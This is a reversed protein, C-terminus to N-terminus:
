LYDRKTVCGTLNAPRVTAYTVGPHCPTSGIVDIMAAGDCDSLGMAVFRDFLAATRDFLPTAVGVSDAFEGVMEIYHQLRPIPGQLPKFRREVMWPARVGFQISGGSGTAIAMILLDIDVGAKLGLAMAEVTAAIHISGLMNILKVRRAAGFPGFYICSDAFAAVVPELKKCAQPDGALYVAGKRASVMGPAGAIKGDIFAAGSQARSVDCWEPAIAYALAKVM